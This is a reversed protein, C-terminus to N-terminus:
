DTRQFVMRNPADFIVRRWRRDYDNLFAPRSQGDISLRGIDWIGYLASKPSGGGGDAYWYGLALRTFMGALYVAFLVQAVLALRNARRTGFLQPHSSPGAARDLVFVNALRAADPALIFLSMLILHFSIQKLGFDYTLNLVFVQIMDALCVIAGLMAT